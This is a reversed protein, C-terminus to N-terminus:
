FMNKLEIGYLKCIYDREISRNFLVEKTTFFTQSTLLADSGAQHQTGTRELGLDNAIEQLGKKVYKSNQVLFKIDYFEPFLVGLYEYFDEEKEPLLNCTLVKILYGFDYASHFSIWVVDESMVLGSTLMAEGFEEIEIGRKEHEKFDIKAQILLDISEQAYMDTDLSFVFNFQWTNVPLPRNGEGDSLSIGLQIIKLLDVNCRLQQYAFSSQSKFNGVPKAVVGPFETDMSIYNYKGILQRISKMEAHLKEKCLNLIQGEDM